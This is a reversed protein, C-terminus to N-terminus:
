VPRMFLNRKGDRLNPPDGARIVRVEESGGLGAVVQAEAEIDSWTAAPVDDFLGVRIELPDADSGMAWVGAVAGQVLVVSTANGSADYIYPLLADDLFRRRDKWTVFLTDWIPLLRM